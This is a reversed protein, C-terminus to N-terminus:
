SLVECESCDLFDGEDEDLGFVIDNNEFKTEFRLLTDYRKIADVRFVNTQFVRNYSPMAVFEIRHHQSIKIDDANVGAVCNVRLSSLFSHMLKPAIYYNSQRDKLIYERIAEFDNTWEVKVFKSM